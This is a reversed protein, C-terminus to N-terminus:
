SNPPPLENLMPACVGASCMAVYPPPAAEPAACSAVEMLARQQATVDEAHAANAGVVGGCVGPVLVCDSTSACATWAARPDEAVDRAPESPAPENAPTESAGCAVLLSGLALWRRM